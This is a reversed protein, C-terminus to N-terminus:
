ERKCRKRAPMPENSIEVSATNTVNSGSIPAFVKMNRITNDNFGVDPISPNDKRSLMSRQRGFYNELPDQCFRETLVSRCIQNDLLFEVCGVISHVTIKIGEYTHSPIFMKNRATKDYDGPRDQISKLWDDFYNLFGCCANM